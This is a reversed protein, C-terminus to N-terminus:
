FPRNLDYVSERVILKTNLLIQKKVKVETTAENEILHVAEHAIEEIPVHITTLEPSTVRSEPIDDFGVISLNKPVQIGQKNLTKILSIAIYDNECFVATVSDIFRLLHPLNKEFLAIRMGPVHLKPLTASDIQYRLLAEHFGRQRDNFNNIRPTGEIYGIKRHGERLLHTAAQFGGLFNNMTVTNSDASNSQTDLSVLRTFHESLPTIHVSTLNTGLLIIGDSPEKKELELLNELLKEKALKNTILSYHKASIETSLYSLLENFFPLQEYNESIVDGNTSAVFRIKLRPTDSESEKSKRKRLPAYNYDKAIKLIHARTTDSIGPKNNLALSAASKSVNAIKAVDELKM